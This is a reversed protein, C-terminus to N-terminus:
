LCFRRGISIYSEEMQMCQGHTWKTYKVCFMSNTTVKKGCVACPDIKGIPLKDKSSSVILKTKQNNIKLGKTKLLDKWNALKRQSGEISDSMIVLDDAYLIEQFVNKGIEETVM